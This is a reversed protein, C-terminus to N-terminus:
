YVRGQTRGVRAIEGPTQHINGLVDDHSLLITACSAADQNLRVLFSTEGALKNAAEGGFRDNSGIAGHHHFPIALHIGGQASGNLGCADGGHHDARRQSALGGTRNAALAIAPGQGVILQNIQALSNADNGGLGNTLRTGLEGHTREVSTTNGGCLGTHHAGQHFALDFKITPGTHPGVACGMPHLSLQGLSVEAEANLRTALALQLFQINSRTRDQEYCITLHNWRIGNKGLNRRTSSDLFTDFLGGFIHNTVQGALNTEFLYDLGPLDGISLTVDSVFGLTQTSKPDKTTVNIIERGVGLRHDLTIFRNM